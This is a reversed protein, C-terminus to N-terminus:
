PSMLQQVMQYFQANANLQDIKNWLDNGDVATETLCTNAETSTTDTLRFSLRASLTAAKTPDLLHAELVKLGAAPTRPIWGRKYYDPEALLTRLGETTVDSSSRVGGTAEGGFEGFKDGYRNLHGKYAIVVPLERFKTLTDLEEQKLKIKGVLNDYIKKYDIKDKGMFFLREESGYTTTTHKLFLTNAKERETRLEQSLTLIREGVKSESFDPSSKLTATVRILESELESLPRSYVKISEIVEAYKKLLDNIDKNEFTVIKGEEIKKLEKGIKSSKRELEKRIQVLERSARHIPNDPNYIYQYTRSWREFAQFRAEDIYFSVRKIKSHDDKLEMRTKKEFRGAEENKLLSSVFDKEDGFPWDIHRVIQGQRNWIVLSSHGIDLGKAASERVLSVKYDKGDATASWGGAPLTGEAPAQAEVGVTIQQSSFQPDHEGYGMPTGKVVTTGEGDATLALSEGTEKTPIAALDFQAARQECQEEVRLAAAPANCSSLEQQHAQLYACVDKLLSASHRNIDAAITASLSFDTSQAPNEGSRELLAQNNPKELHKKCASASSLLLVLALGFRM